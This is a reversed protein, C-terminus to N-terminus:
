SEGWSVRDTELVYTVWFTRGHTLYPGVVFIDAVSEAVGPFRRKATLLFPNRYERRFHLSKRQLFRELQKDSLQFVFNGYGKRRAEFRAQAKIKILTHMCLLSVCYASRKALDVLILPIADAYVVYEVNPSVHPQYTARSDAGHFLKEIISVPQRVTTVPNEFGLFVVGFFRKGFGIVKEAIYLHKVSKGIVPLPKSKESELAAAM